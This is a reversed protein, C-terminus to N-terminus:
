KKEEMRSNRYNKYAQVGSKGVEWLGIGIFATVYFAGYIVYALAEHGEAEEKKRRSRDLGDVRSTLDRNERKLSDIRSNNSM